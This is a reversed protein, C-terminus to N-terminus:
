RQERLNPVTRRRVRSAVILLATSVIVSVTIFFFHHFLFELIIDLAALAAILQLGMPRRKLFQALGIAMAFFYGANLLVMVPTTLAFRNGITPIGIGPIDVAFFIATLGHQLLKEVTLVIIWIRARNSLPDM